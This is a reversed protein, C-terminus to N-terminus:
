PLVLVDKTKSDLGNNLETNDFWRLQQTFSCHCRGKLLYLRENEKNCEQQSIYPGHLKIPQVVQKDNAPHLHCSFEALASVPWSALLIM